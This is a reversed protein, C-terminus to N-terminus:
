QAMQFAQSLAGIAKFVVTVITIIVFIIGALALTVGGISLDMNIIHSLSVSMSLAMIPMVTLIGIYAVYVVGVYKSTAKYPLLCIGLPQLPYLVCVAIFLFKHAVFLIIVALLYFFLAIMTGIGVMSLQTINVGPMMSVSSASLQAPLFFRALMNFFDHLGNVVFPNIWLLFSAVCAKFVTARISQLGYEDNTMMRDILAWAFICGLIWLGARQSTWYHRGTATAVPSELTFFTRSIASSLENLGDQLFLALLRKFPNFM